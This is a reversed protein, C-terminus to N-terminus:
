YLRASGGWKSNRQSYILEPQRRTPYALSAWSSSEKYREVLCAHGKFIQRTNPFTPRWCATGQIRTKSDSLLPRVFSGATSPRDDQLLSVPVLPLSKLGWYMAAMSVHALFQFEIKVVRLQKLLTVGGLEPLLPRLFVGPACPSLTRGDRSHGHELTIIQIRRNVGNLPHQPDLARYRPCRLGARIM